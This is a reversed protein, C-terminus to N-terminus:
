GEMQCLWWAKCRQRAPLVYLRGHEACASYAVRWAYGSALPVWLGHIGLLWAFGFAMCVQLGVMLDELLKLPGRGVMLSTTAM